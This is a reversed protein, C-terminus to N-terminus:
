VHVRWLSFWGCTRRVSQMAPEDPLACSFPNSAFIYLMFYGDMYGSWGIMMIIIRIHWRRARTKLDSAIENVVRDARLSYQNRTYISVNVRAILFIQARSRRKTPSNHSRFIFDFMILYTYIHCVWSSAVTVVVVRMAM